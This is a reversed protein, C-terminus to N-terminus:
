KLGSLVKLRKYFEDDPRIKFALFSETEDGNWIITENTNNLSRIENEKVCDTFNTNILILKKNSDRFIKYNYERREGQYYFGTNFSKSLEDDKLQKVFTDEVLSSESTTPKEGPNIRLSKSPEPYDSMKSLLDIKISEDLEDKTVRYIVYGNSIYYFGDESLEWIVVNKLVKKLKAKNILM